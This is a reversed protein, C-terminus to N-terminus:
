EKQSANVSLLSSTACKALKPFSNNSIFVLDHRALFGEIRSEFIELFDDRDSKRQFKVCAQGAFATFMWMDSRRRSSIRAQEIMLSVVEDHAGDSIAVTRM